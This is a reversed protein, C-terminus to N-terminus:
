KETTFQMLKTFKADFLGCLIDKKEQTNWEYWRRNKPDVSMTRSTTLENNKESEGIARPFEYGYEVSKWVDM